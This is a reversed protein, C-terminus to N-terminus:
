RRRLKGEGYPTGDLKFFKLTKGDLVLNRRSPEPDDSGDSKWLLVDGETWWRGTSVPKSSKGKTEILKGDVTFHARQTVGAETYVVTNGALTARLTDTTLRVGKAADLIPPEGIGKEGAADLILWLLVGVHSPSMRKDPNLSPNDTDERHVIVLNRYPLVILKHANAGSAFYGHGKVKVNRFFSKGSGTWWMYGYGSDPGVRYGSERTVKSHPATSERVWNRPVIQRDGWRGNRLMLLGFRALDRASVRFEYYRHISTMSTSGSDTSTVHCCNDVAFDEMQLPKGFMRDFEEFVTNGTMQEVITGLVNFDWNNYYWYTGPAHSGRKPRSETMWRSEGLAPHYVGSRARILDYITAQKEAANLPPKHDDIGLDEMTKSLDIKGEDVYIGIMASLLSKRMSHCHYNRDVDGWSDIVIGDDVIM